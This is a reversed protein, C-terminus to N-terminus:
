RAQTSRCSTLLQFNLELLLKRRYLNLDTLLPAAGLTLSDSLGGLGLLLIDDSLWNM